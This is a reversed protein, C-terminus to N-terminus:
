KVEDLVKKAIDVETTYCGTRKIREAIKELAAKYKASQEKLQGCRLRAECLESHYRESQETLEAIRAILPAKEATLQKVQEKLDNYTAVETTKLKV